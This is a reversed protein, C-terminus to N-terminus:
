LNSHDEAERSRDDIIMQLVKRFTEYDMANGAKYLLKAFEDTDHLVSQFRKLHNESHKEFHKLNEETFKKM